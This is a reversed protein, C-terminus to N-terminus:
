SEQARMEELEEDSLIREAIETFLVGDLHNIEHCVARAVMGEGVFSFESGFRDLAHVEVLEPRAVMGFVGPVSLCGESGSQEGECRVIVPNIFEVFQESCEEDSEGDDGDVDDPVVVIFARRLVGVQPAALGLGNADILTERMDDLLTHLRNDFKTIERSKKLLTSDKESLINRLAM